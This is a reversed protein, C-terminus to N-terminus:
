GSVSWPPLYPSWFLLLLLVWGFTIAGAKQYTAYLGWATIILVTLSVAFPIQQLGQWRKSRPDFAGDLEPEVVAETPTAPEPAKDQSEEASLAELLRAAEDATITGQELMNLIQKESVTRRWTIRPRRVKRTYEFKSNAGTPALCEWCPTSSAIYWM